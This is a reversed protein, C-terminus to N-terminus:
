LSVTTPPSRPSPSLFAFIPYKFFVVGLYAGKTGLFLARLFVKNDAIFVEISHTCVAGPTTLFYPKIVGKIISGPCFSLSLNRQL